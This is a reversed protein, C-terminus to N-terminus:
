ALPAPSSRARGPSARDPRATPHLDSRGSRGTRRALWLRSLLLALLVSGYLLPRLRDAKVLLMYHAVGLIAIGYVRRHLRQWRAGGLRRVMGNTSTAALPVMFFWALFGVTVYPRELVDGAIFRLALSQDLVAWTLFHLTAYFFCLLGCLRRLKGLAQVGSLKRAPTIALTILLLVLALTGTVAMTAGIPNAGLRGGAARAALVCGPVLGNVLAVAKVLGLDAASLSRSTVRPSAM